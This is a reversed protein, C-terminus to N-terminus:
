HSHATLMIIRMKFPEAAAVANAAAVASRDCACKTITYTYHQQVRHLATRHTRVIIHEFIESIRIYLAHVCHVRERDCAGRNYGNAFPVRTSLMTPWAATAFRVPVSRANVCRVGTSFSFLVWLRHERVCVRTGGMIIYCGRTKAPLLLLVLLVAVATDVRDHNNANNSTTCVCLCGRNCNFTSRARTLANYNAGTFLGFMNCVYNVRAWCTILHHARANQTM